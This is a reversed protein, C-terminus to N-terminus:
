YDVTSLCYHENPVYDSNDNSHFSDFIGGNHHLLEKRSKLVFNQYNDSLHCVLGCTLYMVSAPCRRFTISTYDLTYYLIINSQFPPATKRTCKVAKCSQPYHKSLQCADINIQSTTQTTMLIFVTLFTEMFTYFYLIGNLVMQYLKLYM